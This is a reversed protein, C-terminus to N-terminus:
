QLQKVEVKPFTAASIIGDIHSTIMLGVYVTDAMPIDVREELEIWTIGDKSKYGTFTNDIRTLKLWNYDTRTLWDHLSSIAGTEVRRYLVPSAMHTVGVFAYKSTDNLTERIMVGAKGWEHTYTHTLLHAVIEINGSLKQYVYHFEDTENFFDHGSAKGSGEIYFIGNLMGASGTNSVDGIDQNIWHAPLTSSALSFNVVNLSFDGKECVFSIVHEGAPLKIDSVSIRQWKQKGGTNQVPITGTLNRGDCEIRFRGSDGESAVRVALDYKESAIINVTYNLWEGQQIHFVKYGGGFDHCSDIDVGSIRYMGGQNMNDTDHYAKSESGWDFTEAEIRGPIQFPIGSYPVEPILIDPIMMDICKPGGYAGLDNRLDGKAPSNAITQDSQKAPDNYNHDPNGADICPSNHSLTFYTKSFGPPTNINGEGDWGGEIDNYIFDVYTRENHVYIQDGNNQINGWIINNRATLSTKFVLLGGARGGYFGDGSARNAVITNNEMIKPGPGNGEMVIGGGGYDQGGSNQCIINNRLIVGSRYLIIGAAYRAQNLMIINNLIVPNGEICSIGGGGTSTVNTTNHVKNKIILNNKVTPSSGAIVIGGGERWSTGNPETRVTGAGNTLSFGQLVAGSSEGSVFLVCSATDPHKPNSGDIITKKIFEPDNNLIYFSSIIINKGHFDINEKYIGPAVLVTDGNAAQNIGEQITKRDAPIYITQSFLESTFSLILLFILLTRIFM